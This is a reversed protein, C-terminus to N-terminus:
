GGMREGGPLARQRLFLVVLEVRIAKEDLVVDQRLCHQVVHAVGHGLNTRGAVETKIITKPIRGTKTNRGYGGNTLKFRERTNKKKVTESGRGEEPTDTYTCRHGFASAEKGVASLQPGVVHERM